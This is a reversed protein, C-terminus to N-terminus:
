GEVAEMRARAIAEAGADGVLLEARITWSGLLDVAPFRGTSALLPDLAIVTTEGGLPESATAIVTLSGGGAINRASALLKRAAHAQLGSLTDILVVAHSGRAALRRAQDVVREITQAQADASAAFSVAAAPAVPGAQWESIEEPRVGALVISLQVDEHGTLGAALRKLAETKGARAPGVITVRSGQGFPTLWEIAKITPDDSGLRFRESPFAAPLDDFRTSDAVEDAPRGNITDIRILSAFRESRRPPRRPGSIRDGPVLECRKVQAASVYVDDESPEPPNVRLFGSGNPLLEVEGEVTEEVAPEKAGRGRGSTREVQEEAEETEETEEREEAEEPGQGEEEEEEEEREAAGNEEDRARGRGGRRGRRRRSAPKEEEAAAEAEPGAPSSEEGVPAGGQRAIIADILEPKRLRRYGDISLESALAHLDALPSAALADRDLISM